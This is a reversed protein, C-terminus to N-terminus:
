SQPSFDHGTNRIARPEFDFARLRKLEKELLDKVRARAIGAAEAMQRTNLPLSAGQFGRPGPIGLHLPVNERVGTIVFDIFWTQRVTKLPNGVLVMSIATEGEIVEVEVFVGSRDPRWGDDLIPLQRWGCHYDRCLVPRTEYIACGDQCHRCPVGAEKQMEPQDIALVTCCLTCDGCSRGPVLDLDYNKM